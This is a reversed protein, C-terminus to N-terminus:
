FQTSMGQREVAPSSFGAKDAGVALCDVVRWYVRTIQFFHSFVACTPLRHPSWHWLSVLFAASRTACSNCSPGFFLVPKGSLAVLFGAAGQPLRGVLHSCSPCLDRRGHVPLIPQVYSAM